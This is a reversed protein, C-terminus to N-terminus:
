KSTYGLDRLLAIAKDVLNDVISSPVPEIRHFLHACSGKQQPNDSVLHFCEQFLPNTLPVIHELLLTCCVDGRGLSRM